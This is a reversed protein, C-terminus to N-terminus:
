EVVKILEPHLWARMLDEVNEVTLEDTPTQWVDTVVLDFNNGYLLDLASGNRRWYELSHKEKLTMEVPKAYTERLEDVESQIENLWGSTEAATQVYANEDGLTMMGLALQRLNMNEDFKDFTM